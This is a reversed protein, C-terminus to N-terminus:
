FDEAEKERVDDVHEVWLSSEYTLDVTLADSIEVLLGAGASSENSWGLNITAKGQKLAQREYGDGEKYPRQFDKTVFDPEGYKEILTESVDQFVDFVDQDPTLLRYFVKAAGEDTMFILVQSDEGFASGEFWLDGDEDKKRIYLWLPGHRGQCPARFVGM